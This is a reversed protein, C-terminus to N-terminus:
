HKGLPLLTRGQSMTVQEYLLTGHQFLARWNGQLAEPKWLLGSMVTETVTGGTVLLQSLNAM